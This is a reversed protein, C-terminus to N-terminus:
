ELSTAIATLHKRPTLDHNFAKYLVNAILEGYETYLRGRELFAPAQAYTQMDTGVLSGYLARGYGALGAMTVDDTKLAADIGKAAAVASGAALDM